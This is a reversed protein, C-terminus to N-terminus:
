DFLWPVNNLHFLTFSEILTGFKFHFDQRSINLTILICNACPLRLPLAYNRSSLITKLFINKSKRVESM